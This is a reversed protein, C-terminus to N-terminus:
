TFSAQATPRCAYSKAECSTAPSGRHGSPRQASASSRCTEPTRHPHDRIEHSMTGHTPSVLPRDWAQPLAQVKRGPVCAAVLQTHSAEEPETLVRSSRVPSGTSGGPRTGRQRPQPGRYTGRVRGSSWCVQDALVRAPRIEVLTAYTTSRTLYGKMRRRVAMADLNVDTRFRDLTIGEESGLRCPPIGQVRLYWRRRPKGEARRRLCHGRRELRWSTM